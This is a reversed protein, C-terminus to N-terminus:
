LQELLRDLEIVAYIKSRNRKIILLPLYGGANQEAQAISEWLNLREVNKCEISVPFLKRAKPSLLVDEGNAGMSRSTVDDPLLSPFKNLIRAVVM